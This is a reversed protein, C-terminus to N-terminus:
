GAPLAKWEDIQQFAAIDVNESRTYAFFRVQKANATMRLLSLLKKITADSNVLFFKDL